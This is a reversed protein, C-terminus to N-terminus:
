QEVLCFRHWNQAGLISPIEPRHRRGKRVEAPAVSASQPGARSVPVCRTKPRAEQSSGRKSEGRASRQDRQGEACSGYHRRSERHNRKWPDHVNRIALQKM